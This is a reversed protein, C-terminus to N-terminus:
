MHLLLSVLLVSVLLCCESFHILLYGRRLDTRIIMDVSRFMCVHVPVAEVFYCTQVM